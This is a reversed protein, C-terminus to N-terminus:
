CTPPPIIGTCFLLLLPLAWAPLWAGPPLALLRSSRLRHACGRLGLLATETLTSILFIDDSASRRHSSSGTSGPLRGIVLRRENVTGGSGQAVGM